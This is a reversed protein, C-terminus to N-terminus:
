STPMTDTSETIILQKWLISRKAWFHKIHKHASNWMNSSSLAQKVILRIHRKFEFMKEYRWGSLFSTDRRSTVTEANQKHKLLCREVIMITRHIVTVTIVATFSAVPRWPVVVGGLCIWWHVLVWHSAPDLVLHHGPLRVGDLAIFLVIPFHPFHSTWPLCADVFVCGLCIRIINRVCNFSNVKLPLM